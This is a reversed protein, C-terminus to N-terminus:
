IVVWAIRCSCYHCGKLNAIFDVLKMRMSTQVNKYMQESVYDSIFKSTYDDPYPTM